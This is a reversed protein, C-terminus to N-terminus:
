GPTLPGPEGYRNPGADGRKCLLYTLWLAWVLLALLYFSVFLGLGGSTLPDAVYAKVYLAVAALPILALNWSGFWWLSRGIDHLRRGTVALNPIILIATALWNLWDFVPSVVGLLGLVLAIAISVWYMWWYEPRGARGSFQAYHKMCYSFWSM